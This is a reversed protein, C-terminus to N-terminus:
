AYQGIMRTTQGLGLELIRKPRAEDLVRYLAYLFPYGAAWRGPSFSKDKLWISNVITDRFIEGWLVESQRGKLDKLLTDEATKREALMRNTQNTQLRIEETLRAKSGKLDSVEQKLAAIERQLRVNEEHIKSLDQHNSQMATLIHEVERNFSATPPPLIKKLFQKMITM